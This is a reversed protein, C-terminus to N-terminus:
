HLRLMLQNPIFDYITFGEQNSFECESLRLASKLQSDHNYQLCKTTKYLRIFYNSSFSPKIIEFLNLMKQESCDYWNPVHVIDENSIPNSDVKGYLCQNQNLAQLPVIYSTNHSTYIKSASSCDKLIVRDFNTATGEEPSSLCLESGHLKILGRSNDEQNVIQFTEVHRDNCTYISLYDGNEPNSPTNLCYPTNALRIKALGDNDSDIFNFKSTEYNYSCDELTISNGNTPNEPATLCYHSKDIRLQSKKHLHTNVGISPADSSSCSVLSLPSNVISGDTEYAYVCLNEGVIKIKGIGLNNELFSLNFSESFPSSCSHLTITDGRSPQNPANFCLDTGVVKIKAVGDNDSDLLEFQTLEQNDCSTILVRARDVFNNDEITLCNSTGMIRFEYIQTISTNFSNQNSPNCEQLFLNNELDPNQPAQLCLTSNNIRLSEEEFVFSTTDSAACDNLSFTSDSSFDSPLDLCQNTNVLKIKKANSNIVDVLTFKNNHRSECHGVRLVDNNDNSTVISLCYPSDHISILAIGDRDRDIITFSTELPNNCRAIFLSSSANINEPYSACLDSVHSLFPGEALYVEWQQSDSNNNERLVIDSGNIDGIAEFRLNNGSLSQIRLNLHNNISDTILQFRSNESECNNGLLVLSSRKTTICATFGTIFDEHISHITGDPYIRWKQASSDNCEWSQINTNNSVSNYRLDLCKGTRKNRLSVKKYFLNLINNNTNSTIFTLQNTAYSYDIIKCLTENFSRGLACKGNVKNYFVGPSTRDWNFSLDLHSLLIVLNINNPINNIRSSCVVDTGIVLKDDTSFCSGNVTPSLPQRYPNYLLLNNEFRYNQFLKKNVGYMQQITAIDGNSISTFSRNDNCNSIISRYDVPGVEVSNSLPTTPVFCSKSFQDYDPRYEEHYLGVIHGFEHLILNKFNTTKPNVTSWAISDQIRGITAEGETSYISGNRIEYLPQADLRYKVINNNNLDNRSCLNWRTFNLNTYKEYSNEIYSQVLLQQSPFNNNVWCVPVVRTPDLTNAKYGESIWLKTTQYIGLSEILRSSIIERNESINNFCSYLQLFSCILFIYKM